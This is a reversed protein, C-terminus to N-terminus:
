NTGGVGYRRPSPPEDRDNRVLQLRAGIEPYLRRFDPFRIALLERLEEPSYGLENLHAELIDTLVRPEEFPLELEPPEARRYGAAGMRSWLYRYQAKSIIELEAARKLLAAISVKWILKLNALRELSVPALVESIDAAPLLFEGAFANAQQEMEESPIRHMIVHGLEHALTFRLRDMPISRNLFFVPPLSSRVVGIGDIRHTGFDAFVVIGGAAEVIGVLDKIPGRPLQWLERIRRAIEFASGETEEPDIRPILASDELEISKRLRDLHIMMINVEAHIRDLSKGNVNKLKRHFRAPLGFLREQQFFFKAPYDLVKALRLLVDSAVPLLGNEIKSLLGQSVGVAEALEGQTLERSERALRVMEGNANQEV